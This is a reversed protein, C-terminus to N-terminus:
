SAWVVFLNHQHGCGEVRELALELQVGREVGNCVFSV